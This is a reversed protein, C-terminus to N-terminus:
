QLNYITTTDYIEHPHVVLSPGSVVLLIVLKAVPLRDFGLTSADTAWSEKESKVVQTNNNVSHDKNLDQM